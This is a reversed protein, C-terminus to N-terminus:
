LIWFASIKYGGLNITAQSLFYHWMNYKKLSQVADPSSLFAIALDYMVLFNFINLLFSMKQRDQVEKYTGKFEIQEAESPHCYIKIKLQDFYKQYKELEDVIETLKEEKFRYKGHEINASHVQWFKRIKEILHQAIKDADSMLLYREAEHKPTDTSSAVKQPKM